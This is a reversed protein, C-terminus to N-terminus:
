KIKKLFDSVHSYIIAIFAICLIIYLMILESGLLKSLAPNTENKEFFEISIDGSKSIIFSLLFIFVLLGIGILSSVSNRFNVILSKVVFYLISGIAAGILIYLIIIGINILNM